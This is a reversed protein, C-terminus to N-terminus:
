DILRVPSVVGSDVAHLEFARNATVDFIEQSCSFPMGYNQPLNINLLQLLLFGQRHLQPTLMFPCIFFLIRLLIIFEINLAPIRLGVHQLGIFEPLLLQALLLLLHLFICDLALSLNSVSKLLDVFGEVLSDLSPFALSRHLHADKLVPRVPQRAAPPLRSINFHSNIQRTADLVLQRTCKVDNQYREPIPHPSVRNLNTPFTSHRVRLSVTPSKVIGSDPELLRQVQLDRLAQSGGHAYGELEENQLIGLEGSVSHHSM